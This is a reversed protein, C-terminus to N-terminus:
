LVIPLQFHFKSLHYAMVVSVPPHAIFNLMETTEYKPFKMQNLTINIHYPKFTKSGYLHNHTFAHYVRKCNYGNYGLPIKKKM